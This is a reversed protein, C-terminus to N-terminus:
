QAAGPLHAARPTFAALFATLSATADRMTPETPVAAPDTGPPRVDMPIFTNATVSYTWGGSQFVVTESTLFPGEKDDDIRQYTVCAWASVALPCPAHRQVSRAGHKGRAVREARDLDWAADGTPWSSVDFRRLPDRRPTSFTVDDGANRNSAHVKLPFPDVLNDRAYRAQSFVFTGRRGIVEDSGTIPANAPGPDLQEYLGDRHQVCIEEKWAADYRSYQATVQADIRGIVADPSESPAAAALAKRFAREGAALTAAQRAHLRAQLDDFLPVLAPVQKRCLEVQVDMARGQFYATVDALDQPALHPKLDPESALAPAAALAALLLALSRLATM